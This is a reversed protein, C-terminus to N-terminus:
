HTSQQLHGNEPCGWGASYPLSVGLTARQHHVRQLTLAVTVIAVVSGRLQPCCATEAAPAQPRASLLHQLHLTTLLLSLSSFSFSLSIFQSLKSVRSAPFKLPHPPPPHGMQGPSSLFIRFPGSLHICLSGPHM